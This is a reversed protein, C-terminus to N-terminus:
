ASQIDPCLWVTYRMLPPYRRQCSRWALWDGVQWRNRVGGVQNLRQGGCSPQTGGAKLAEGAETVQGVDLLFEVVQLPQRSYPEM